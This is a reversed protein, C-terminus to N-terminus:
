GGFALSSQGCRASAFGIVPVAYQLVMRACCRCCSLVYFSCKWVHRSHESEIVVGARDHVPGGDVAIVRVHYAAGYLESAIKFASCPGSLDLLEFGPHVRCTVKKSPLLAL